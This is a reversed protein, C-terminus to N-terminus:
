RKLGCSELVARWLALVTRADEKGLLPYLFGESMLPADEDGPEYFDNADTFGFPKSEVVFAELRRLAHERAEGTQAARRQVAQLLAETAGEVARKRAQDERFEAESMDMVDKLSM